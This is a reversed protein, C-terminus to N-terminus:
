RPFGFTADLSVRCFGYRDLLRRRHRERRRICSVCRRQPSSRTAHTDLDVGREIVLGAVDEDRFWPGPWAACLRRGRDLAPEAGASRQGCHSAHRAPAAAAGARAHPAAWPRGQGGLACTVACGGSLAHGIEICARPTHTSWFRAIRTRWLQACVLIRAREVAQRPALYRLRCLAAGCGRWRPM